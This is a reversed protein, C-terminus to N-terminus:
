VLPKRVAHRIALEYFVNANHGTLDAIVMPDNQLRDIVHHTITGPDSMDLAWQARYGCAEAAPQIIHRFVQDSRRRTESTPEGIPAIVFCPKLPLPEETMQAGKRRDGDNM